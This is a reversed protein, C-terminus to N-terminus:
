EVKVGLAHLEAVLKKRVSAIAEGAADELRGHLDGGDLDGGDKDYIVLECASSSDLISLDKLLEAAKAVNEPKMLRPAGMSQEWSKWRIEGGCWIVFGDPDWRELRIVGLDDTAEEYLKVIKTGFCGIAM